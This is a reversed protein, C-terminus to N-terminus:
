DLRGEPVKNCPIGIDLSHLDVGCLDAVFNAVEQQRHIIGDAMLSPVLLRQVAIRGVPGVIPCLNTGVARNEVRIGATLDNRHQPHEAIRSRQQIGGVTHIIQVVADTDHVFGTLGDIGVVATHISQVFSHAQQGLIAALGGCKLM